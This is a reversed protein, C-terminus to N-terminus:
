YHLQALYKKTEFVQQPAKPSEDEIYYFKVGARDAARFIAPWNMQGNGLSVSTDEPATGTLDTITGKAIDKLHMVDFRGPYRELYAVPDAGGHVFWFADLEITVYEPKTEEMLVDFLTEKPTHVFEFGHPHYGFRRGQEKLKSGWGNFAAAAKHVDDITLEGQRPMSSTFVYTAGLTKADLTVGELDGQLRKYDVILSTCTLDNQQLLKHFEEASRSYFSATEVDRFGLRRIEALTGGLDKELQHRYTWLEMGVPAHFLTVKVTAATKPNWPRVKGTGNNLWVDVRPASWAYPKQLLDLDGDGDFDAIRGDHWGEGQDLVTARFTGDGNGYLIRATANPNDLVTPKTTWKGQEAVLIDLNGDGDIDGIDLTHGHSLDMDLLRTGVWATEDLPDGKCEYIMLPGSGDGPAIVIQPYKGPKFRGARIRGGIVGVKIPKFRDGGEHKFWYNGALLDLKGDGDIDYADMGEAYLAAKQVGEGATGVFIPTLPWPGSNRPDEPIRALFLTKAGQNWFILQPKGTGEVDAFIMDHHQNAGGQKIIHRKWPVDPDFNPYPNEWWYLNSGQSDEGFIIDPNGDGDVDFATGGAELPLFDKEVVYRDWGAPTRRYWVLAPGTVRFSLVFDTAPSDRDFRGIADGTQERSTSPVPLEGRSSSKRVWKINREAASLRMPSVGLAHFAALAVGGRM